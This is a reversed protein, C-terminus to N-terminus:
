GTAVAALVYRKQTGTARRGLRDRGATDRWMLELETDFADLFLAAKREADWMEVQPLSAAELVLRVRKGSDEARVGTIQRSHARDLGDALRLIAALKAIVRRDGKGLHKLNPHSKRPFARRHYRAINAILEVEHPSFGPLDGHMILHYAHKHHRAHNIIYGIDHLLAGAQLLERGWPPLDYAVQLGDFIDGSLKAVHECHLENSRCKRAFTRVWELREAPEARPEPAGPLGAIIQLLIGDRIGRENVLIQRVGLRKALRAIVAAGAVIIDARDASLGPIQRRADLPTERLRDLLHVIDARTLMYGQVSGHRGERQWQAM